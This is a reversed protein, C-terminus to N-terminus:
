RQINPILQGKEKEPTKEPSVIKKRSPHMRDRKEDQRRGSVALCSPLLIYVVPYKTIMFRALM